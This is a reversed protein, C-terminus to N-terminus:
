EDELWHLAPYIIFIKFLWRLPSWDPCSLLLNTLKKMLLLVFLPASYKPTRSVSSEPRSFGLFKSYRVRLSFFSSRDLRSAVSPRVLSRNTCVKDNRNLSMQANIVGCVPFKEMERSSSLNVTRWCDILFFASALQSLHFCKLVDIAATCIETRSVLPHSDISQFSPDLQLIINVLPCINSFCKQNIINFWLM